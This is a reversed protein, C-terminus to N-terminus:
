SLTSQRVVLKPVFEIEQHSRKDSSMLNHLMEWSTHGMLYAPQDITSLKPFIYEGMPINDYGIVALDEPISLGLTQAAQIVGIAMIDNAAFIGDPRDKKSLLDIALNYGGEYRYDGQYVEGSIELGKLKREEVELLFGKKRGLASPSLKPGSLHAIRKCGIDILHRTAVRGGVENDMWVSGGIPNERRDIVVFPVDGILNLLDEVKSRSGALIIGDVRSQRLKELYMKEREIKWDYNCLITAFGNQIASDEIGRVIDAYFPNAVDPILLGVTSTMGSVLGRAVGSPSFNLKTMAKRVNTDAENSVYGSKNIVRSVTSVSVGAVKAVDKITAL